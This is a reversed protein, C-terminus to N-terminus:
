LGAWHLCFLCPVPQLTRWVRGGWLCLWRAPSLPWAGGCSHQTGVRVRQRCWEWPIGERAEGGVWIDGKGALRNM